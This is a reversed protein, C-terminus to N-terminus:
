STIWECNQVRGACQLGIRHWSLGRRSKAMGATRDANRVIAIGEVVDLLELMGVLENGPHVVESPDPDAACFLQVVPREVGLQRLLEGFRERDKRVAADVFERRLPQDVVSAAEEDTSRFSESKQLVQELVSFGM